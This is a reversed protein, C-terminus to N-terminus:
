GVISTKACLLRVYQQCWGIGDKDTMFTCFWTTANPLWVQGNGGNWGAIAVPTYGSPVGWKLNTLVLNNAGMYNSFELQVVKLLGGLKDELVTAKLDRLPNAVQLCTANLGDFDIRAIAFEFISGGNTLDEQKLTPATPNSGAPTGEIIALECVEESSTVKVRMVLYDIRKKGSVGATVELTEPKEVSCQRGCVVCDGSDVKIKSTNEILSCRLFNRTQLVTGDKGLLGANLCSADLSSVHAEGKHGTVLHALKEGKEKKLLQYRM